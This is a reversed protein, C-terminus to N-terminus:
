KGGTPDSIYGAFYVVKMTPDYIMLTFPRNVHMVVDSIPMSEDRMEVKTMAAAETGKEDIALFTKQTVTAIHLGTKTADTAMADFDAVGSDFADTMGISKLFENASLTLESHVRPMKFDVKKSQMATLSAVLHSMSTPKGDQRLAIVMMVDSDKYPLAIIQTSDTETYPYDELIAMMDVSHSGFMEKATNAKDFPVMWDGKFYLTNILFMQTLPHIPEDIATKIKKRTAVSVWENIADVMASDNFDGTAIMPAYYTRNAELFSELVREKFTDRIWISNTLHFEIGTKQIMSLQLARLGENIVDMSLGSLKLSDVMQTLTNNKAGQATMGLALLLSPASVFVNKQELMFHEIMEDTLTMLSESITSPIETPKDKTTLYGVSDLLPTYPKASVMCGQLLLISLSYMFFKKM